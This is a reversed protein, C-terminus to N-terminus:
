LMDKIYLWAPLTCFLSDLCYEQIWLYQSQHCAGQLVLSSFFVKKFDKICRQCQKLALDLLKHTTLQEQGAGLKQAQERLDWILSYVSTWLFEILPSHRPRRAPFAVKPLLNSFQFTPNGMRGEKTRWPYNIWKSALLRKLRQTMAACPSFYSPLFASTQLQPTMKNANSTTLWRGQVMSWCSFFFRFISSYKITIRNVDHVSPNKKLEGINTDRLQM